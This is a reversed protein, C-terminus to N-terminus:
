EIELVVVSKAPLTAMVKSDEIKKLGNLAARKLKNTIPSM